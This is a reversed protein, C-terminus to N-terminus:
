VSQLHHMLTSVCVEVELRVIYQDTVRFIFFQVLNAQNIKSNALLETICAFIMMFKFLDIYESTVKHKGANICEMKYGLATSVIQYREAIQQGVQKIAFEREKFNFLSHTLSM